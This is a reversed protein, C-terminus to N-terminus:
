SKKGQFTTLTNKMTFCVEYLDISKPIKKKEEEDQATSSNHGRPVIYIVKLHGPQCYAESFKLGPKDNSDSKLVDKLNVGRDEM